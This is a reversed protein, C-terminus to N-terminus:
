TREPTRPTAAALEAETPPNCGARECNLSAARSARTMITQADAATLTDLRAPSLYGMLGLGVLLSAMYTDGAGVTDVLPQAPHVPVEVVSGDVWASAGAGGRTLVLIRAPTAARLAAIAEAEPTGPFLGELDEDSLKLVHVRRIMRLIRARYSHIDRIISLRVNPDLSVVKGSAYLHAMTAEWAAADAGDILTLSGTHVVQADDPIARLLSAETVAREATKDRDFVYSPIGAEVTVKAMTSPLDNRGGTLTVGDDTLRGALMQGWADTSIPSVYSVAAGQRAAAMAVNFPSGGPHSVTDGDTTVQDILNEGGVAIRIDTM